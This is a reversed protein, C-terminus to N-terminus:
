PSPPSKKSSRNYDTRINELCISYYIEQCQPHPILFPLSWLRLSISANYRIVYKVLCRFFVQKESVWASDCFIWYARRVGTWGESTEEWRGRLRGQLLGIPEHHSDERRAVHVLKEPPQRQLPWLLRGSQDPQQQAPRRPQDSSSLDSQVSLFHYIFHYLDRLSKFTSYAM